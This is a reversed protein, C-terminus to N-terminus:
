KSAGVLARRVKFPQPEIYPGQAGGGSNYRDAMAGLQFARQNLGAGGRRRGRPGIVAATTSAGFLQSQWHSLGTLAARMGNIDNVGSCTM